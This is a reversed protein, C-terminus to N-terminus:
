AKKGRQKSAKPKPKKAAARNAVNLAERSWSVLAGPEDFLREPARRYGAMTMLGNKSPYTFPNMGEADYSARNEADVKFYLIDDDLLGFTQGGLRLAAGGFMPRIEVPGLPALQETLFQKFSDSLAM